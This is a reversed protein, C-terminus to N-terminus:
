PLIKKKEVKKVLSLDFEKTHSDLNQKVAFIGEETGKM